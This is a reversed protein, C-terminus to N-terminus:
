ITRHRASAASRCCTSRCSPAVPSRACNTSSRRSRHAAAPSYYDVAEDIEDPFLDTKTVVILLWIPHDRRVAMSAIRHATISWDELEARLQRERDASASGSTGGTRRATAHGYAVVHIVGDVPEDHFVEDLAGLRTAANDGPVVRFRFGHLRSSRRTRREMTASGVEVTAPDTTRRALRNALATKGVGTVGTVAVTPFRRKFLHTLQAPGGSVATLGGAITTSIAARGPGSLAARGLRTNM